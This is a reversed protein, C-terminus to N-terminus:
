GAMREVFAVVERSVSQWDRSQVAARAAAGLRRRTAAATLCAELESALSLPSDHSFLRGSHDHRVLDSVGPIDAAVCCCSAAMAQLLSLPQGEFYSPLVFVDAREFLRAEEPQGFSTIIELLRHAEVPFDARVREASAGSGAIVLRFDIGRQMLTAIAAVLPRYGQPPDLLRSLPGNPGCRCQRPRGGRARGRQSRAADLQPARGYRSCVEEFDAHNLVIAGRGRRMAIAAPLLRYLPFAVRSRWRIPDGGIPMKAVRWGRHELGHSFVITTSRGLVFPLGAPEHALVALPRPLRERCYRWAVFPFVSPHREGVEEPGVHVFRFGAEEFAQKWHWAVRGM